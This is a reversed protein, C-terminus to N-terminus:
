LLCILGIIIVLALAGGFVAYGTVTDVTKNWPVNKLWKLWCKKRSKQPMQSRRLSKKDFNRALVVIEM